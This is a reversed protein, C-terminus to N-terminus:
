RSMVPELGRSYSGMARRFEEMVAEATQEWGRDAARRAIAARDWSTDLAQLIADGFAAGDWFPVLLGDQGHRVVEPNGGVRTTVVPLGCALAETMSNSWGESRTALCFLDAASMWRPIEDHPRASVLRVHAGLGHRVGLGEIVERTRDGRVEGGVAIYLL